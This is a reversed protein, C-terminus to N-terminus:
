SWARRPRSSTASSPRPNPAPSSSAPRRSRNWNCSRAPWNRNFARTYNVNQVFPTAGLSMDDFLEFGKGGGAAHSGHAALEVRAKALREKPIMITTGGNELKYPISASDLQATISAVEDVPLPPGIPTYDTSATLAAVVASFILTGAVVGVVLLRHINNLGNWTARLQVLTRQLFNM